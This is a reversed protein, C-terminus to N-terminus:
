KIQQRLSQLYGGPSLALMTIFHQFLLSQLLSQVEFRQLKVQVEETVAARRMATKAKAQPAKQHHQQPDLVDALRNKEKAAWGTQRRSPNCKRHILQIQRNLQDM